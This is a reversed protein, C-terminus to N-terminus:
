RAPQAAGKSRSQRRFAISELIQKFRPEHRINELLPDRQFWEAREDGFRMGRELWELAKEKEGLMAHIEAGYVAHWPSVELYKVVEPDMEKFAEVRNGERAQL